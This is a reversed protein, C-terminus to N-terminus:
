QCHLHVKVHLLNNAVDLIPGPLEKGFGASHQAIKGLASEETESDDMFTMISTPMFEVSLAKLYWYHVKLRHMIQKDSWQLQTISSFLEIEKYNWCVFVFFQLQREQDCAVCVNCSWCIKCGILNVISSIIILLMGVSIGSLVNGVVIVIRAKGQPIAEFETRLWTDTRFCSCQTHGGLICRHM